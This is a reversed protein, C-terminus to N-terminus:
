GYLEKHRKVELIYREVANTFPFPIRIIESDPIDFEMGGWQPNAIMILWGHYPNGYYDQSLKDLRTKGVKYVAQKDTSESPISIGPIQEMTGNSRFKEYRDYYSAM